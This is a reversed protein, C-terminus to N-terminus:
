HYGLGFGNYWWSSFFDGLWGRSKVKSDKPRPSRPAEGAASHRDWNWHTLHHVAAIYTVCVYWTPIIALLEYVNPSPRTVLVKRGPEMEMKILYWRWRIPTIEPQDKSDGGCAFVYICYIVFFPVVNKLLYIYIYLFLVFMCFIYWLCIM